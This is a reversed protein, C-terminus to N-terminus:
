KVTNVIRTKKLIDKLLFAEEFLSEDTGLLISRVFAHATKPNVLYFSFCENDNNCHEISSSKPICNSFYQVYYIM